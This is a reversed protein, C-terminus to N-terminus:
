RSGARRARGLRAAAHRAGAGWAVAKVVPGTIPELVLRSPPAPPGDAGHGARAREAAVLQTELDTARQEARALRRRTTLLAVLALALAGGLVGLGIWSGTSM